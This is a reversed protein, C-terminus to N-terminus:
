SEQELASARNLYRSLEELDDGAEWAARLDELAMESWQTGSNLNPERNVPPLPERNIIDDKAGRKYARM